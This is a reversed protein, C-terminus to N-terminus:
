LAIHGARNFIHNAVRAQLTEQTASSTAAASPPVVEGEAHLIEVEELRDSTNKM